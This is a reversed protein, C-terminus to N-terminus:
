GGVPRLAGLAAPGSFALTIPLRRMVLMFPLTARLFQREREPGIASSVMAHIAFGFPTGIM